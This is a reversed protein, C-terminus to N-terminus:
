SLLDFGFAIKKKAFFSGTHRRIASPDANSNYLKAHYQASGKQFNNGNPGTDTVGDKREGAGDWSDSSLVYDQKWSIGDTVKSSVSTTASVVVLGM